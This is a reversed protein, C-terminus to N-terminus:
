EKGGLMNYHRMKNYLTKRDINLLKAAKSKNFQVKKLVNMITEFEAELAAEKLNTGSARAHEMAVPEHIHQHALTSIVPPSIFFESRSNQVMEPPLVQTTIEEADAASLLAARKIINKLERINGPWSYSMFVQKVEPSFDQINKNLELNAVTIFYEAFKLIDDGRDRLPPVMITFENFRHYLDERFRGKRCAETLNENSAIIIRVDLEIEKNGGIRKMRREQVVRLLSVQVEYPLNGIEDLFLTGGNAMEFHGIKSTLAGTFSGKEHGFLESGALEKSIAGCDMAVFPHHRRPSKNHISQAVAEKGSGSEGYAIVSYNTPAVLEIQRYLEKSQASKGIIINSNEFSAKKGSLKRPSMSTEGKEHNELSNQIIHLIEDPVLPKTVYDIAGARIVNVAMKIDSYGTIIIVPLDLGAEHIKSLVEMGDTDGFRFDCILLDFKSKQLLDLISLGRFTVVTEYGHRTLFRSLLNCIDTDDDAILIRKAM